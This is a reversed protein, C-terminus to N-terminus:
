DRALTVKETTDQKNEPQKVSEAEQVVDDLATVKDITKDGSKSIGCIEFCDREDLCELLTPNFAGCEGNKIMKVAELHSLAEKYPRKSRLADYVDALAVVQGELSLETGKLGNPYGTGDWREQHEYAAKKAAELLAGDCGKVNNLIELGRSPHTKVVEYEEPTLKGPKNLINKDVLVKGLDHFMSAHAYLEITNDSLHLSPSSEKLTTLFYRTLNQVRDMGSLLEDSSFDLGYQKHLVDVCGDCLNKFDNDLIDRQCLDILEDILEGQEPLFAINVNDNKVFAAHMVSNIDYDGLKLYEYMSVSRYRLDTGHRQSNYKVEAYSNAGIEFAIEGYYIKKLDELVDYEKFTFTVDTGRLAKKLIFEVNTQEKSLSKLNEFEEQPVNNIDFYGFLSKQLSLCTHLNFYYNNRSSYVFPVARKKIIDVAYKYPYDKRLQNVSMSYREAYKQTSEFSFKDLDFEFNKTALDGYVGIKKWELDTLENRNLYDTNNVPEINFANALEEIATQFDCNLYESVFRIVNGGVSPGFDFFSDHGDANKLYLKCSATRENRLKCFYSGGKKEVPVGFHECVDLISISNLDELNYFAKM